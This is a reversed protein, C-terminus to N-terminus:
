RTSVRAPYQRRRHLFSPEPACPQQRLAQRWASASVIRGCLTTSSRGYYATQEILKAFSVSSGLKTTNFDLEVSQLMGKHADLPNDRTDRTFNAAITSLRVHQDQPLVLDSDPHPDPGDPSATGCSFSM